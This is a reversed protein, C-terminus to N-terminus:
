HLAENRHAAEDGCEAFAPWPEDEVAEQPEPVQREPQERPERGEAAAALPQERPDTPRPHQAKDPPRVRVYDDRDIRLAGLHETPETAGALEIHGGDGPDGIEGGHM